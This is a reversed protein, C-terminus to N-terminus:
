HASAMTTAAKFRERGRGVPQCERIRSAVQQERDREGERGGREALRERRGREGRPKMETTGRQRPGRTLADLVKFDRRRRRRQQRKTVEEYDPRAM